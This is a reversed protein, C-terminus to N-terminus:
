ILAYYRTQRHTKKKLNRKKGVKVLNKIRSKLKSIYDFYFIHQSTAICVYFM